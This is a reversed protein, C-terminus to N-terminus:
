PTSYKLGQSHAYRYNKAISLDCKKPLHLVREKAWRDITIQNYVANCHKLQIDDVDRTKWVEPDIEDLGAVKRNKIKRLVSDLEEQTFKIELQNSIIKTIQEHTVKQTKELLKEFYQKWM